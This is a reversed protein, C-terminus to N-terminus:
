WTVHSVEELLAFADACSMLAVGCLSRDPSSAEDVENDLLPLDAPIEEWPRGLTVVRCLPLAEILVISEPHICTSPQGIASM